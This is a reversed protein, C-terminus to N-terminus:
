LNVDDETLEYTKENITVTRGTKLEGCMMWTPLNAGLPLLPNDPDIKEPVGIFSKNYPTQIIQLNYGKGGQFKYKGEADNIALLLKKAQEGLAQVVRPHCHGLGNVGWGPFFDLYRKGEADWVYSGEGRVLVVPNKGYTNMVYKKYLHVTEESKKMAIVMKVVSFVSFISSDLM